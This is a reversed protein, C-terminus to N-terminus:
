VEIIKKIDEFVQASPQNADVTSLKDLDQYYQLIPATVDLYKQYRHHFTEETDENRTSLANGCNDCVNTVKPALETFYKNYTRGCKNCIIRGLARKTAVEETVALYIVRYDLINLSTFITNLKKAQEVNRPYGDLIFGSKVKALEKMLLETIIDDSVLDGQNVIEQVQVGLESGSNIEKRLLDGTSIHQYGYNTALLSSVTGKGAAPPAIFILNM